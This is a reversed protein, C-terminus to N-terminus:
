KIEEKLKDCLYTVISENLNILDKYPFSFCLNDGIGNNDFWDIQFTIFSDEFIVQVRYDKVNLVEGISSKLEEIDFINM